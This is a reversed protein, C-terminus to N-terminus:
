KFIGMTQNTPRCNTSCSNKLATKHRRTQIRHTIKSANLLTERISCGSQYADCDSGWQDGTNQNKRSKKWKKADRSHVATLDPTAKHREATNLIRRMLRLLQGAYIVFRNLQSLQLLLCLSFCVFFFTCSRWVQLKFGRLRLKLFAEWVVNRQWMPKM